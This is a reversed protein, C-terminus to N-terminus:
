RKRKSEFLRTLFAEADDSRGTKYVRAKLEERKNAEISQNGSRAAPAQMPKAQAVKKNALPKSEQLAMYKAALHLAHLAAPSHLEAEGYGLTQAAKGLTERTSDDLKGIRRQLESQGFETQKRKHAEQAQKANDVARALADRKQSLNRDLQQRAFNLQLAQQPDSTVLTNWDLADFQKLQAEIAEVEAAERFAHNIILERAELYQERDQVKQRQQAVEQTKQTYDKQFSDRKAVIEAVKKPLKFREGDIETEESDDAEEPQGEEAGEEAAEADDADETEVEDAEVEPAAEERSFLAELREEPSQPVETEPTTDM